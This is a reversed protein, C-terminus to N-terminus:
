KGQKSLIFNSDFHKLVRICIKFRVRESATTYIHMNGSYHPGSRFCRLLQPCSYRRPMFLVLISIATTKGAGNPGLMGFCEGHRLGVSLSRVAVKTGGRGRGEFVKRLGVTIVADGAMTEAGGNSAAAADQEVARRAEAAVDAPQTSVADEMAIVEADSSTTPLRRRPALCLLPHLPIRHGSDLV